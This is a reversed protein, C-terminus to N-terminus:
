PPRLQDIAMTDIIAAAFPPSDDYPTQAFGSDNALSQLIHLATPDHNRARVLIEEMPQYQQWDRPAEDDPLNEDTHKPPNGFRILMRAHDLATRFELLRETENDLETLPPPKGLYKALYHAVDPRKRPRRIDVIDSNRTISLWNSKIHAHDLWGSEMVIHLHPHWQHRDKNFTVEFVGFGFRPSARWFTRQRLRRFFKRFAALQDALPRSSSRLTLTLFKLDHWDIPEIDAAAKNAIRLRLRHGCVPCLRMNCGNSITRYADRSPSFQVWCNEGCKQFRIGATYVGNAPSLATLLAARLLPNKRFRHVQSPSDPPHPEVTLM